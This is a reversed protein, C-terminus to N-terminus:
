LVVGEYFNFMIKSCYPCQVYKEKNEKSFSKADEVIIKKCNSCYIKDM